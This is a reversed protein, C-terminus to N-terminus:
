LKIVKRRIIEEGSILELIYTGAQQGSLDFTKNYSGDFPSLEDGGILQGTANMLRVKLMGSSTNKYIVTLRDNAPVPMITLSNDGNTEVLGTIHNVTVTFSCTDTAGAGDTVVYREVTAGVPFAAGSGLGAIRQVSTNTCNAAHAPATYNVVASNGTTNTTINGPCAIVPAVTDGSQYYIYYQVTNGSADTAVVAVATVNGTVFTGAVPTQTITIASCSDSGTFLGVFDPLRSACNDLTNTDAIFNAAPVSTFYPAISDYVTIHQVCTASNNAFDRATWTVNTTGATYNVPANSTISAVGCNDLATASLTNLLAVSCSGAPAYVLTDPPCTISPLIADPGTTVSVLPSVYDCGNITTVTVRYTGPLVSVGPTTAGNSWHYAVFSSDATILAPSSPCAYVSTANVIQAPTPYLNVHLTDRGACGMTDRLFVSYSGTDTFLMPNNSSGNWWRISDYENRLNVYLSDGPECVQQINYVNLQGGRLNLLRLITDQCGLNNNTVVAYFVPGRMGVSAPTFVGQSTFGIGLYRKGDTTDFNVPASNTCYQPFTYPLNYAKSKVNIIATDASTCANVTISYIVTDPGPPASRTNYKTTGALSDISLYRGSWLGGGTAATLNYLGTTQCVSAPATITANPIAANVRINQARNASCGNETVTRTLLHYGGGATAPNFATGSIGAGTYTSNAAPLQIVPSNICYLTDAFLDVNPVNYVTVTKSSIGTCGTAQDYWAYEIIHPGVGATRPNFKNGAIGQGSLVGGAPGFTLTVDSTDYTCYGPNLGSLTTAPAPTVQVLFDGGILGTGCRDYARFSYQKQDGPKIRDFHLIKDTSYTIYNGASDNTIWQYTLGEAYGQLQPDIDVTENECYIHPGQFTNGISINDFVKVYYTCSAQNSSYDFATYTVTHYGPGFTYSPNTDIVYDVKHILTIPGSSLGDSVMPIPLYMSATCLGSDPILNYVQTSGCDVIPPSFETVIVNTTCRVTDGTGRVIYMYKELHSGPTFYAGSGQGSELIITVGACPNPQGTIQDVVGPVPYYVPLGFGNPDAQLWNDMCNAQLPYIPNVTVTFTCTDTLGASDRVVYTQTTTGLPFLDGPALGAIRQTSICASNDTGIPETFNMILGCMNDTSGVVNAPAVIVPAITDRVTITFNATDRHGVLDSVEYSQVTTGVPFVSGSALGRIRFTLLGNNCNDTGVPATFNVVQGCNGAVLDTIINAPATIHPGERDEVTLNYSCSAIHNNAIVQYTIQTTGAPFYPAGNATVTTTFCSGYQPTIVPHGYNPIYATCQGPDTLVTNDNPCVISLMNNDVVTVNYVCTAINGSNDRAQYYQTTTGLEFYGSANGSVLGVSPTFCSNDTATLPPYFVNQGCIQPNINVTTDHPCNAIVPKISDTVTVNFSCYSSNNQADAARYVVNTTGMPFQAGSALGFALTPNYFSLDNDLAPAVTYNIIAGCLGPTNTVSINNPCVLNPGERDSVTIQVPCTSTNGYIDTAKWVSTYVGISATDGTAKGSLQTVSVTGALNDTATPTPYIIHTYFSQTDAEFYVPDPCTIVPRISDTVIVNFSCTGTNGALDTATYVETSVGLAHQGYQGFGSVFTAQPRYLEDCNDQVSPRNYFIEASTDSGTVYYIQGAPCSFVPAENDLVTVNFNGVANNGSSDRFVYNFLTTGVGFVTDNTLHGTWYSSYPVTINGQCNDTAYPPTIHINRSCAGPANTYTLDPLLNYIVPPNVDRIEIYTTVDTYYGFMDTIRHTVTNLGVPFDSGSPLGSTRTVRVYGQCAGDVGEPAQYVIQKYCNNADVTGYYYNTFPRVYGPPNTEHYVAVPVRTTGACGKDSVTAVYYVLSDPFPPNVGFFPTVTFSHVHSGYDMPANATASNYFNYIAPYAGGTPSITAQGFYGCIGYVAPVTPTVTPLPDVNSVTYNIASHSVCGSSSTYTFSYTGNEKVWIKGINTQGTSWTVGPYLNNGTYISNLGTLQLQVSDTGACFSYYRPGSYHQVTLNEFHPEITFVHEAPTSWGCCPEFTQLYVRYVTYGAQVPPYFKLRKERSTLLETGNALCIRWYYGQLSTDGAQLSVTDGACVSNSLSFSPLPRQNTVPIDYFAYAQYQTSSQIIHITGPQSVSVEFYTPTNTIVHVNSAQGNMTINLTSNANKIIRITSNTCAHATDASFGLLGYIGFTNYKKGNSGQQGNGGPGGKGGNGGKAGYQSPFVAGSSPMAGYYGLAGEGGEGGTGGEGGQGPDGLEYTINGALIGSSQYGYIGFVGGGGGGGGGGSGGGGGGGGAGGPTSLNVVFMGCISNGTANAINVIGLLTAKAVVAGSLADINTVASAAPHIITIGGAGGGGGGAGGGGPGGKGGAVPVYFKEGEIAYGLATSSTGRIGDQGNTGPTGAQSAPVIHPFNGAIMEAVAASDNSANQYQTLYCSINCNQGAIGGTGGAAGIASGGTGGVPPAKLECGSTLCNFNQCPGYEQLAGGMGGNAGTSTSQQSMGEGLGGMRYNANNGPEGDLGFGGGQANGTSLKMNLLQVNQSKYAHVAYISFGSRSDLSVGSYHAVDLNFDRLSINKVSDLQIGIIHAVWQTQGYATVQAYQFAPNYVRVNTVASPNKAWVGNNNIFGGEITIGSPLKLTNGPYYIGEQLLLPTRSNDNRYMSIAAELNAPSNATGTGTGQPSVYIPNGPSCQSYSVNFGALIIIAIALLNHYINKM